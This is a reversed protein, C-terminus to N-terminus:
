SCVSSKGLVQTQNRMGLFHLECSSDSRHQPLFPPPIFQFTLLLPLYKLMQPSGLPYSILHCSKQSFQPIEHTLFLYRTRNSIHGQKCHQM